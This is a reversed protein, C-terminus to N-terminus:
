PGYPGPFPCDLVSFNCMVELVLDISNQELVNQFLHLPPLYNTYFTLNNHFHKVFM